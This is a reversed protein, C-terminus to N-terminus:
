NRNPLCLGFSLDGSDGIIGTSLCHNGIPCDQDEYCFVTCLAAGIPNGFRDTDQLCSAGKICDASTQCKQNQGGLGGQDPLCRFVFEGTEPLDCRRGFGCDQKVPDCEYIGADTPTGGTGGSAGGDFGGTGVGGTSGGDFSADPGGDFGPSGGTRFGGTGGTGIGGTGGFGGTRFGGTRGGTDPGFGGTRFGGTGFGGTAFGGTGVRGGTGGRGGTSAGGTGIRGGTALGGTGVRGGTGFGGTGFGGTGGAGADRRGGTGGSGGDGDVPAGGDDEDFGFLSTRGCAAFGMLTLAVALLPPSLRM